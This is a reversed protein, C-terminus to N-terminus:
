AEPTKSETAPIADDLVRAFCAIVVRDAGARKLASICADSTAGSTLVDDVLVVKAGRIMPVRRPLARITGAVARARAKRGLGGLPRTMRHRELADVVVQGGNSRAIERALLAAQNFGRRWLRWRHLPVPVIIWEDDVFSLKAAMLRALLPALAIRNGHKFALVLKRSPDNYLTGAAIGDHRPPSAMCPACILGDGLGDGFPRQCLGCAPEGPIALESWCVACLGSQASLGEGCLPCRPPFILDVVPALASGLLMIAM